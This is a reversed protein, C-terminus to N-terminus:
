PRLTYIEKWLSVKQSEDFRMLLMAIFHERRGDTHEIQVVMDFLVGDEDAVANIVQYEIGTMTAKMGNLFELYSARDAMYYRGNPEVIFSEGFCQAVDEVTLSSSHRLNKRNWDLVANALQINRERKSTM